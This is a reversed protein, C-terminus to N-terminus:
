TMSISQKLHKRDDNDGELHDPNVTFDIHQSIPEERALMALIISPLLHYNTISMSVCDTVCSPFTM